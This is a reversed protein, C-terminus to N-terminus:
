PRAFTLRSTSQNIPNRYSAVDIPSRFQYVAPNITTFTARSSTKQIAFPLSGVGIGGLEVDEGIRRNPRIPQQHNRVKSSYSDETMEMMPPFSQSPSVEPISISPEYHDAHYKHWSRHRDVLYQDSHNNEPPISDTDSWTHSHTSRSKRAEKSAIEGEVSRPFFITLTIGSSVICGLAGIMTLLDTWLMSENIHQHPRSGDIGLIVFPVTFLFRFVVRITNLEHFKTLRVITTVDVGESKLSLLFRPFISLVPLFAITLSLSGLSGALFTYAESRLPVHRTFITLLPMYLLAICSGVVWVRFYLSKFWEQSNSGANVLFYWFCLEELHTVLELAWSLSFLLTFPFIADQSSQKWLPYPKPIIGFFPIDIFGEQYKIVAFGVAYTTILPVSLLYSYTMIRKFAGSHAGNNSWKLCQFRDFSWLHYVLFTLLLCSLIAWVLLSAPSTHSM